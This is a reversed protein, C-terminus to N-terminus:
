APRATRLAIRQHADVSAAVAPSTTTAIIQNERGLGQLAHFFSAQRDAHVHAEVEDVLVLSDELGQRVFSAAFLVAQQEEGGLDDLEVEGGGRREFVIRAGGDDGLDVRALRIDPHMAAIATAYPELLDPKDGGLLVGRQALLERTRFAAREARARLEARVSAYKEPDGTLRQRSEEVDSIARAAPRWSAGGLGRNAAFYDVKSRGADRSYRAFVRALAADHETEVTTATFACRTVRVPDSADLHRLEDATLCWKTEISGNAAGTRIMRAPRLPSGYRGVAEKAFLIAELLSTRGSGPGGTVVVTDLPVDNERESFLYSGNPAGRFNDVTLRLLKM